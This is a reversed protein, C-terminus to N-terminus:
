RIRCRQAPIVRPKKGGPAEVIQERREAFGKEAIEELDEFSLVERRGNQDVFHAGLAYGFGYTNYLAIARSEADRSTARLIAYSPMMMAANEDAEDPSLEEWGAPRETAYLASGVDALYAFTMRYAASALAERSWRLEIRWDHDAVAEIRDAATPPNAPEPVLLRRGEIERFSFSRPLKWSSPEVVIRLPPNGAGGLDVREGAVDRGLIELGRRARALHRDLQARLKDPALAYSKVEAVGRLAVRAEPGSGDEDLLHFDSGKAIRRGSTVRARVTDGAFLRPQRAGFVQHSLECLPGIALLEALVGQFGSIVSAHIFRITAAVDDDSQFEHIREAPIEGSKGYPGATLFRRLLPARSERAIAQACRQIAWRFVEEPDGTSELAAGAAIGKEISSWLDEAIRPELDALGIDVKPEPVTSVRTSVSNGSSV